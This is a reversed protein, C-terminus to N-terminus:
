VTKTLFDKIQDVLEIDEKQVNYPSQSPFDVQIYSGVEMVTGVEGVKGEGGCYKLLRVKDGIKFM